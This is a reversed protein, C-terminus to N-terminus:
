QTNLLAASSRHQGPTYGNSRGTHRKLCCAVLIVAVAVLVVIGIILVTLTANSSLMEGSKADEGRPPDIGHPTSTAYTTVRQTQLITPYKVTNTRLRTVPGQTFRPRVVPTTAYNSDRPLASGEIDEDDSSYKGSGETLQVYSEEDVSQASLLSTLATLLFIHLHWM